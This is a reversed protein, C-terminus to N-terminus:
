NPVRNHQILKVASDSLKTEEVEQFEKKHIIM